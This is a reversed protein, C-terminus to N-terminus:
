RPLLTRERDAERGFFDDVKRLRGLVSRRGPENARVQSLSHGLSAVYWEFLSQTPSKMAALFTSRYALLRQRVAHRSPLDLGDDALFDLFRFMLATMEIQQDGLKPYDEEAILGRFLADGDEKSMNSRNNWLFHSGELIGDTYHRSILAELMTRKAPDAGKLYPELPDEIVYIKAWEGVDKRIERFHSPNDKAHSSFGEDKDGAGYVLLVNHGEGAEAQVREATVAAILETDFAEVWDLIQRDLSPIAGSKAVGEIFKRQQGITHPDSRSTLIFADPEAFGFVRKLRSLGEADTSGQSRGTVILPLGDGLPSEASAQGRIWRISRDIKSLLPQLGIVGREAFGANPLDFAVLNMGDQAMREILDAYSFSDSTVAGAGHLGVVLPGRPHSLWGKESHLTLTQIEPVYTAQYGPVRVNIKGDRAPRAVSGLAFFAEGNLSPTPAASIEFQTRLLETWDQLVKSGFIDWQRELDGPLLHKPYDKGIQALPQGVLGKVQCIRGGGLELKGGLIAAKAWALLAEPPINEVQTLDATGKMPVRTAQLIRLLSVEVKRASEGSESYITLVDDLFRLGVERVRDKLAEVNKRELYATYSNGLAERNRSRVREGLSLALSGGGGDGSDPSLLVRCGPWGGAPSRTVGESCSRLREMRDLPQSSCAVGFAIALIVGSFNHSRRISLM